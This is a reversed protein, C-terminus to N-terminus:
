QVTLTEALEGMTVLVRDGSAFARGQNAFLVFYVREAELKAPAQRLRGVKPATPVGLRIRTVPNVLAPDMNRHVIRSAKEPDLVRYRLDLMWGGAALRLSEFHIGFREEVPATVGPGAWAPRAEPAIADAAAPAGLTPAPAAPPLAPTPAARPGASAGAAAEAAGGELVPRVAACGSLVIGTALLATV